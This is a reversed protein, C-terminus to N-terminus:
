NPVQVLEVLAVEFEEIVIEVIDEAELQASSPSPNRVQLDVGVDSTGARPVNPALWRQPYNM